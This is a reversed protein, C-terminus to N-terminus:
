RVKEEPLLCVLKMMTGTKRKTVAHYMNTFATKYIKINDKGYKEEAQESLSCIIILHTSLLNAKGPVSSHCPM